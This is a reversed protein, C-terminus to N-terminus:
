FLWHTGSKGAREGAWRLIGLYMVEVQPVMLFADKIINLSTVAPGYTIAFTLPMRASSSASTPSFSNEDTNTTRFERAVVRCRRIWSNGKFRRDFVLTTDVATKEPTLVVPQIVGM